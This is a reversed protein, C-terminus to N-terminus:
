HIRVGKATAIDISKFCRVLRIGEWAPMKGLKREKLLICCAYLNLLEEKKAQYERSLLEYSKENFNKSSSNNQNVSAKQYIYAIWHWCSSILLLYYRYSAFDLNRSLSRAFEFLLEIDRLRPHNLGRSSDLVQEFVRDLNTIIDLSINLSNSLVYDLDCLQFLSLTIPRALDRAFIRGLSRTHNLYFNRTMVLEHVVNLTQTLQLRNQPLNMDRVLNIEAGLDQDFKLKQDLEHAMERLRDLHYETDFVRLSDFEKALDQSRDIEQTLLSALDRSLHHVRELARSFAHNRVVADSGDLDQALLMSRDLSLIINIDRLSVQDLSFILTSLYDILCNRELIDALNRRWGEWCEKEVGAIKNEEGTATWCGIEPYHSPYQEVETLTPLRYTYDLNSFNHNVWQCFTQADILRVGTVPKNASGPPFRYTTWHFPQCPKSIKRQKDIFLQYEACTILGNDIETNEDIQRWDM